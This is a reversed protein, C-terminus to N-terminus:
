NTPLCGIRNRSVVFNDFYRSQQQEMGGGHYNELYIANLGFADYSRRYDLTTRRYIQQDDIWFEGIGDAQGLSNLKVHVEVCVWRNVYSSSYIQPSPTTSRGLWTMYNWDNFTNALAVSNGNQETILSVPDFNVGLQNDQWIHAIMGQGYSSNVFMTVRTLKHPNGEWGAGTRHYFRWYIEQFNENQSRGNNPALPNKGFALVVNGPTDIGPLYTAKLSSNGGFPVENTVNFTDPSYRDVQYYNAQTRDLSNTNEFDDCWIVNPDKRRESCEMKSQPISVVPPTTSPPTTPPPSLSDDDNNSNSSNLSDNLINSAVEDTQFSGSSCNQFVFLNLFFLTNLLVWRCKM